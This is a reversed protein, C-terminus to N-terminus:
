RIVTIKQAPTEPRLFFPDDAQAKYVGTVDRRQVAGLAGVNVLTSHIVTATM